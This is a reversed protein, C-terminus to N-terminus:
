IYWSQYYKGPCYRETVFLELKEDTSCSNASIRQESCGRNWTRQVRQHLSGNEWDSMAFDLSPLFRPLLPISLGLLLPLHILGFTCLAAVTFFPSIDRIIQHDSSFMNLPLAFCLGPPSQGDWDPFIFDHLIRTPYSRWYFHGSSEPYIVQDREALSSLIFFVM